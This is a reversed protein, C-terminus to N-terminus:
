VNIQQATLLLDLKGNIDQLLKTNESEAIQVVTKENQKANSPADEPIMYVAQKEPEVEEVEQTINEDEM